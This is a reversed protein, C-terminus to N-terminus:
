SPKISCSRPYLITYAVTIVLATIIGFAAQQWTVIGRSLYVFGLVCELAGRAIGTQVWAIHRLPQTAAVVYGCAMTAFVCGWLGILYSVAAPLDNFHFAAEVQKPAFILCAGLLFLVAADVMLAYRLLTLKM